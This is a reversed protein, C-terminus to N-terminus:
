NSPTSKVEWSLYYICQLSWCGLEMPVLIFLFLIKFKGLNYLCCFLFGKYLTVPHRNTVVRWPSIAWLFFLMLGNGWWSLEYYRMKLFKFLM